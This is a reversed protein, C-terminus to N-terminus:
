RSTEFSADPLQGPKEHFVILVFRQIIDTTVNASAAEADALQLPWCMVNSCSGSAAFSRWVFCSHGLTGCV